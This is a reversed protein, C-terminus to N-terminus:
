NDVKSSQMCQKLGFERFLRCLGVFHRRRQYGRAKDWCPKDCGYRCSHADHDAAAGNLKMVYDNQLVNFSEATSGENLVESIDNSGDVHGLKPRQKQAINERQQKNSLKISHKQRRDENYEQWLVDMIEQERILSAKSLLPDNQLVKSRSRSHSICPKAHDDCCGVFFEDENRESIDYNPWFTDFERFSGVYDRFSGATSMYNSEEGKNGSRSVITRLEQDIMVDENLGDASARVSEESGSDEQARKVDDVYYILKSSAPPPARTFKMTGTGSKLPFTSFNHSRKGEQKCFECTIPLVSNAGASTRSQKKMDTESWLVDGELTYFESAANQLDADTIELKKQDRGRDADMDKCQINKCQKCGELPLIQHKDISHGDESTWVIAAKSVNTPQLVADVGVVDDLSHPAHANTELVQKCVEEEESSTTCDELEPVDGCSPQVKGKAVVMDLSRHVCVISEDCACLDGDDAWLENKVGVQMTLRRKSVNSLHETAIRLKDDEVGKGCFVEERLDSLVHIKMFELFSCSVQRLSQAFRYKWATTATPALACDCNQQTHIHLSVSREQSIQLGPQFEGTRSAFGLFEGTQLAIATATVLSCFVLFCPTIIRLIMSMVVVLLALLIFPKSLILFFCKDIKEKLWIKDM